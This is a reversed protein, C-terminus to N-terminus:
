ADDATAADALRDDEVTGLGQGELSRVLAHLETWEDRLDASLWLTAGVAILAIGGLGGSVIYPLQESALLADSVGLWGALLALAGAAVAVWAVVRDWQNRFQKMRDM